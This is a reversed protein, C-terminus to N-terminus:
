PDNEYKEEYRIHRGENTLIGYVIFLAFEM